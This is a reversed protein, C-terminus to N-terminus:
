LLPTLSETEIFTANTISDANITVQTESNTVRLYNLEVDVIGQEVLGFITGSYDMDLERDHQVTTFSSSIESIM